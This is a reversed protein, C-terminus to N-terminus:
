VYSTLVSRCSSSICSPHGSSVKEFEAVKPAGIFYCSSLIKGMAENIEGEISKYNAKLDVLPINDVGQAPQLEVKINSAAGVAATSAAAGKPQVM